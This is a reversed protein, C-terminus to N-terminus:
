SDATLERNLDFQLGWVGFGIVFARFNSLVFFVQQKIYGGRREHKGGKTNEHYPTEEPGIRRSKWLVLDFGNVVFARFNSLV